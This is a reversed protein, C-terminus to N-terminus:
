RKAEAALYHAIDRAESKSVPMAPMATGPKVAPANRIFEALNTQTAPLVGAVLGRHDFAELSPGFRGKPWEIGPMAHCAACQVRQAVLKGRRAAEADVQFRDDPAPKCAALVLLLTAGGYKGGIRVHRPVAAAPSRNWLRHMKMRCDGAEKQESGTGGIRRSRRPEALVALDDGHGAAVGASPESARGAMADSTFAVAVQRRRKGAAVRAIQDTLQGM